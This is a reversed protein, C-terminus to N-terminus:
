FNVLGDSANLVIFPRHVSSFTSSQIFIIIMSSSAKPFTINQLAKKFYQSFPVQDSLAAEVDEQYKKDKQVTKYLPM